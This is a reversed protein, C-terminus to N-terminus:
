SFRTHHKKKKTPHRKLPSTKPHPKQINGNQAQQNHTKEQPSATQGKKEM